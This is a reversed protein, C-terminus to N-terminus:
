PIPRVGVSKEKASHRGVDSRRSTPRRPFNRRSLWAVRLRTWLGRAQPTMDDPRRPQEAAEIRDHLAIAREGAPASTKLSRGV